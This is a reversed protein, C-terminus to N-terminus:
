SVNPYTPWAPTNELALAALGAITGFAWPVSFSAIGGLIYGPVASALDASFGKQWFGTDM